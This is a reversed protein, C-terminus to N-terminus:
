APLGAEEHIQQVIGLRDLLSQADDGLSQHGVTVSEDFRSHVGDHKGSEVGRLGYHTLGHPFLEFPREYSLQGFVHPILAAQDHDM